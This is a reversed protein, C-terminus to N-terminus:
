KPTMITSLFFYDIFLNSNDVKEYGNCGSINSLLNQVNHEIRISVCVVESLAVRHIGKQSSKAEGLRDEHSLLPLNYCVIVM